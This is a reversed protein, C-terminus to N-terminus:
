QHPMDEALGTLEHPKLLTVWERGISVIGTTEWASLTRSVSELTTGNMQALDQRSLRMELRLAGNPEPVGVKQALRLLTRAIRQQVREASLERIREYAEHLRTATIKLARLALAPCEALVTWLITGPVQAATVAELAEASGPYRDGTLAVVFAIVDGPVFIALTTDKGSLSHQILRVRGSIVLFFSAASEGEVFLLEGAQFTRPRASEILRQRTPPSLDTFFESAVFAEALTGVLFYREASCTWLWRVTSTPPADM